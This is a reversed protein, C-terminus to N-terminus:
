RMAEKRAVARGHAANRRQKDAVRAKIGRQMRRQFRTLIGPQEKLAEKRAVARAHAASQQREVRDAIADKRLDNELEAAKKRDHMYKGRKLAVKKRREHRNGAPYPLGNRDNKYQLAEAAKQAIQWKPQKLQKPQSITPTM